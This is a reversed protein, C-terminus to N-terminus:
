SSYIETPEGEPMSLTIRGRAYILNEERLFLYPEGGEPM